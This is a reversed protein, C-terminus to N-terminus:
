AFAQWAAWAAGLLLLAGIVLGIWANTGRAEGVHAAELSAAASARADATPNASPPPTTADDHPEGTADTTESM